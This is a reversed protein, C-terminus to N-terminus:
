SWAHGDGFGANRRRARLRSERWARVVVGVGVSWSYSRSRSCWGADEAALGGYAECRKETATVAPARSSEYMEGPVPRHMLSAIAECLTAFTFHKERRKGPRRRGDGEGHSDTISSAHLDFVWGCEERVVLMVRELPPKFPSEDLEASPDAEPPERTDGFRWVWVCLSNCFPAISLPQLLFLLIPIPLCCVFGM